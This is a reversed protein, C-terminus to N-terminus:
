VERTDFLIMDVGGTALKRVDTAPAKGETSAFAVQIAAVSDFYRTAMLHFGSPGM